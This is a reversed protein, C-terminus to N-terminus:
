MKKGPRRLFLEQVFYSSIIKDRVFTVEWDGSFESDYESSKYFKPRPFNVEVTMGVRNINRGPVWISCENARSLASFYQLQTNSRNGQKIGRSAVMKSNLVGKGVMTDNESKKIERKQEKQDVGDRNDKSLATSHDMALNKVPVSALYANMDYGKIDYQLIRALSLADIDYDFTEKSSKLKKFEQKSNHVLYSAFKDTRFQYNKEKISQMFVTFFNKHAPIVMNLAEEADPKDISIGEVKLEKLHKEIVESFKTEPYGKAVYSGMMNRSQTDQLLLQVLKQNKKDVSSVVKSIVFDLKADCGKSDTYGVKIFGGAQIKTTEKAIGSTYGANDIFLFSAKKIPGGFLCEFDVLDAEDIECGNYEFYFDKLAYAETLKSNLDGVGKNKVNKQM